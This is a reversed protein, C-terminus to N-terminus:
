AGGAPLVRLYRLRGNSSVEAVALLRGDPGLVRLRPSRSRVELAVGHAVKAAEQASVQITPLEALADALAVLRPAVHARAAGPGREGASVLEELPIAAQLSFPGSHTRRLALLHAGSGLAQGLDHALVRVFFGKTCRVVLRLEDASFDRLTLEHVVVPRAAREVEEGARALEYLRKGGVKVASYMPPTQLGPGRFRSLVAEVGEPTLKPVPRTDVVAGAADQTDTQVGLKVVAEYAKDGETIFGAIKTAEGLCIPLVGTALPDLTGTHGAKKVGLAVRARRVVEFSTPGAPKDVVLVGNMERAL